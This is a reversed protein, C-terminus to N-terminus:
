VFFEARGLHSKQVNLEGIQKEKPISPNVYNEGRRKSLAIRFLGFVTLHKAIFLLELLSLAFSSDM